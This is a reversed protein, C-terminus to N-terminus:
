WRQADNGQGKQYKVLNGHQVHGVPHFDDARPRDHCARQVASPFDNFGHPLLDELHLRHVSKGGLAGGGADNERCRQEAGRDASGM